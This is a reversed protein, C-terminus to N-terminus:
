NNSSRQQPTSDGSAMPGSLGKAAVVKAKRAAAVLMGMVYRVNMSPRAYAAAPMLPMSKVSAATPIRAHMTAAMRKALNSEVASASAFKM